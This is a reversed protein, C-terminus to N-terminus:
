QGLYKYEFNEIGFEQIAAYIKPSNAYAEGKKGARKELKEQKTQGVYFMGNIKNTLLYIIYTINKDNENKNPM